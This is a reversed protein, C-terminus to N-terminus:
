RRSKVDGNEVGTAGSTGMSFSGFESLILNVNGKPSKRFDTRHSKLELCTLPVSIEDM